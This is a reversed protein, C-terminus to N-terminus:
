SLNSAVLQLNLSPAFLSLSFPPCKSLPSLKKKNGDEQDLDSESQSNSKARRVVCTDSSLKPEYVLGDQQAPLKSLAVNLETLSSSLHVSGTAVIKHKQSMMHVEFQPASNCYVDCKQCYWNLNKIRYIKTKTARFRHSSEQCVKVVSSSSASEKSGTDKEDEEQGDDAAGGNSTTATTTTTQTSTLITNIDQLDNGEASINVTSSTSSSIVSRNSKIEDNITSMTTVSVKLTAM